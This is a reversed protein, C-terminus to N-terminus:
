KLKKNRVDIIKALISIAIEEPTEAAMEVGMPTDFTNLEAETFYGEKLFTDHVKAVKRKSGIMGLYAFPKKGLRRLLEFDHDHTPSMITSYSNDDFEMSEITEFYDGYIFKYKQLETETFEIPRFDLLTVDFDVQYAFNALAKGIHGAGFIYLKARVGVPEIYVEVNGGCQMNLDAALQYSKKLAKNSKIVEIAEAIVQVEIAGGGITGLISGNPAVLMKSGIKRPTSGKTDTVICLAAAKHKAVFEDIHQYINM